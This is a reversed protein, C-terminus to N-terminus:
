YMRVYPSHLLTTEHKQPATYRLDHDRLMSSNPFKYECKSCAYPKKIKSNLPIDQVPSEVYNSLPEPLEYDELDKESPMEFNPNPTNIIHSYNERLKKYIRNTLQEHRNVKM